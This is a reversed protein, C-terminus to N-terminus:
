LAQTPGELRDGNNRCYGRILIDVTNAILHYEVPYGDTRSKSGRNIRVAVLTTKTTTTDGESNVGFTGYCGMYNLINIGLVGLLPFLTFTM